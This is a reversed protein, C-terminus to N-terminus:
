ACARDQENYLLSISSSPDVTHHSGNKIKNLHFLLCLSTHIMLYTTSCKTPLISHYYFIINVTTMTFVLNTM